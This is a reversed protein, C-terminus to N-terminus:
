GLAVRQHCAYVLGDGAQLAVARQGRQLLPVEADVQVERGDLGSPAALCSAWLLYISAFEGSDGPWGAFEKAAVPLPGRSSAPPPVLAVTMEDTLVITTSLMRTMIKRSAGPARATSCANKLGVSMHCENM